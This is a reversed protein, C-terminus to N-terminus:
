PKPRQGVAACDLDGLGKQEAELFARLATDFFPTAAGAAEAMECGLRVDKVALALRFKVAEYTNDALMGGRTEMQFSRAGTDMLVSLLVQPDLGLRCGLQFGEALVCLNTMGILNSLLKAACSAELSGVRVPLGIAELLPWAREVSSDPGGVFIPEQAKEAMAPTKGLTAQVYDIGREQCAKALALATQPDITSCEIHLSGQRMGAYLGKAGLLAEKLYQPRAVCSILVDACALDERREVALGHEGLAALQRAKALDRSFVLVERGQALLNRLLGSGMLGAGWFGIRM